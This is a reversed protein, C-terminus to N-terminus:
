DQTMSEHRSTSANQSPRADPTASQPVETPRFHITTLDPPRTTTTTTTRFHTDTSLPYSALCMSDEHQSEERTNLNIMMALTYLKPEVISFAIFSASHGLFDFYLGLKIIDCICPIAGTTWSLRILKSILTDAKKIGTKAIILHHMCCCTTIAINTVVLSVASALEAQQTIRIQDYGGGRTSSVILAIHWALSVLMGMVIFLLVWRWRYSLLDNLRLLFFSQATLVELVNSLPLLEAYWPTSTVAIQYSSFGTILKHWILASIQFSKVLALLLSALVLGRIVRRDMQWYLM